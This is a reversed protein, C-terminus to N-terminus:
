QTAPDPYPYSTWRIESDNIDSSQSQPQPAPAAEGYDNLFTVVYWAVSIILPLIFVALFILFSVSTASADAKHDAQLDRNDPDSTM